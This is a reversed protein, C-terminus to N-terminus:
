CHLLNTVLWKPDIDRCLQDHTWAELMDDLTSGSTMVVRKALEIDLNGFLGAQRAILRQTPTYVIQFHAQTNSYRLVIKRWIFMRKVAQSIKRNVKDLRIPLHEEICACALLSETSQLIKDVMTM